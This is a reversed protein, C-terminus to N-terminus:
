GGDGGAGVIPGSMDWLYRLSRYSPEGLTSSHPGRGRRDNGFTSALHICMRGLYGLSTTVQDSISSWRPDFPPLQSLREKGTCSARAALRLRCSTPFAAKFIHRRIQHTRVDVVQARVSRTLVSVDDVLLISTFYSTKVGGARDGVRLM